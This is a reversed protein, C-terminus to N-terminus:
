DCSMPSSNSKKVLRSSKSIQIGAFWDTEPWFDAERLDGNIEGLGTVPYNGTQRRGMWFRQAQQASFFRSFRPQWM